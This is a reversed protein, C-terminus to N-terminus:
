EGGGNARGPGSLGIAGVREVGGVVLGDDVGVLGDDLGGGGLSWLTVNAPQQM